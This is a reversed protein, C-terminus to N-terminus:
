VPTRSTLWGILESEKPLKGAVKVEGDIVLAPLMFVGYKCFTSMDEVKVIEADINRTQVLDNVTDFFKNCKACGVSLIEVKMCKEGVSSYPQM